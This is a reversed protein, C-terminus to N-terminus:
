CQQDRNEEVYRDYSKNYKMRNKQLLKYSAM